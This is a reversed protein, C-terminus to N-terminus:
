EIARRFAPRERLRKLYATLNPHQEGLVGMWRAVQVTYGMMVDAGSFDAGLLYDKGALAREVVALAAEARARSEAIVAQSREAESKWITEFAMHGLPGMLT